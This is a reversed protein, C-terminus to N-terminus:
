ACLCLYPLFVGLLKENQAWESSHTKWNFKTCSSYKLNALRTGVAQAALEWCFGLNLRGKHTLHVKCSQKIIVYWNSFEKLYVIGNPSSCVGGANVANHDQILILSLLISIIKLMFFDNNKILTYEIIIIIISKHVM